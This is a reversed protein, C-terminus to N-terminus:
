EYPFLYPFEQIIATMSDDFQFGRSAYKIARLITREELMVSTVTAMRRRIASEVHPSIIFDKQNTTNNTHEHEESKM